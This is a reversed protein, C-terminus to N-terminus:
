LWVKLELSGHIMRQSNLLRKFKYLTTALEEVQLVGPWGVGIPNTSFAETEIETVIM